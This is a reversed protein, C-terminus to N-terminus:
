AQAAPDADGSAGQDAGALDFGSQSSQQDAEDGNREGADDNPADDAEPVGKDSEHENGLWEDPTIYEAKVSARKSKGGINGARQVKGAKLVEITKAKDGENPQAAPDGDGSASQGAHARAAANPVDRLPELWEPVADKEFDANIIEDKQVLKEGVYGTYKARYRM